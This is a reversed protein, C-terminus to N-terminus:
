QQLRRCPLRLYLPTTSFSSFSPDTNLANSVAEKMILLEKDIKWDPFVTAGALEKSSKHSLMRVFRGMLDCKELLVIGFITFQQSHKWHRSNPFLASIWHLCILWCECKVYVFWLKTGSRRMKGYIHVNFPCCYLLCVYPQKNTFTLICNECM